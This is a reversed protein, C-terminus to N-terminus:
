VKRRAGPLKATCCPAGGQATSAIGPNGCYDQVGAHSLLDAAIARELDLLVVLIVDESIPSGQTSEGFPGICCKRELKMPDEGALRGLEPLANLQGLLQEHLRQASEDRKELRPRWSHRQRGSTRRMPLTRGCLQLTRRAACSHEHGRMGDEHHGFQCVQLSTVANIALTSPKLVNM